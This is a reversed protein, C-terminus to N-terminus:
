FLAEVQDHVGLLFIDVHRRASQSWDAVSAANSVGVLTRFWRDTGGM